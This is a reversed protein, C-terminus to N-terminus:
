RLFDQIQTLKNELISPEDQTVERDLTALKCQHRGHGNCTLPHDIGFPLGSMRARSVSLLILFMFTVHNDGSCRCGNLATTRYRSSFSFLKASVRVIVTRNAPPCCSLSGVSSNSRVCHHVESACARQNARTASFSRSLLNIVADRKLRRWLRGHVHLRPLIELNSALHRM